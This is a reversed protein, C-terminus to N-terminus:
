RRITAIRLAKTLRAEQTRKVREHPARPMGAPVPPLVCITGTRQAALMEPCATRINVPPAAAGAGAGLLWSTAPLPVASNTYTGHMSWEVYGYTFGLVSVEDRNMRYSASLIFNGAGDTTGEFEVGPRDSPGNPQYKDGNVPNPNPDGGIIYSRGVWQTHIVPM